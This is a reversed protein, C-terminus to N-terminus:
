AKMLKNIFAFLYFLIIIVLIIAVFRVLNSKNDNDQQIKFDNTFNELSINKIYPCNQCYPCDSGCKCKPGYPCRKCFPCGGRHPCSLNIFNNPDTVDLKAAPVYVLNKAEIDEFTEIHGNILELDPNYESYPINQPFDSIVPDNSTERKNMKEEYEKATLPKMPNAVKEPYTYTPLGHPTFQNPHMYTQYNPDKQLEFDPQPYFTNKDYIVLPNELEMKMQVPKIVDYETPDKKFQESQPPLQKYAVGFQNGRAFNSNDSGGADNCVLGVVGQGNNTTLYCADKTYPLPNTYPCDPGQYPINMGQSRPAPPIENCYQVKDYKSNPYPKLPMPKTSSGYNVGEPASPAPNGPFPVPLMNKHTDNIVDYDTRM